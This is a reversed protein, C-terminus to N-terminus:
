YVLRSKDAVKTNNVVINSDDGVEFWEIISLIPDPSFPMRLLFQYQQMKQLKANLKSHWWFNDLKPPHFRSLLSPKVLSGKLHTSKLYIIHNTKSYHVLMKFRFFGKDILSDVLEFEWEDLPLGSATAPKRCQSSPLTLNFFFHDNDLSKRSSRGSQGQSYMRLAALHM